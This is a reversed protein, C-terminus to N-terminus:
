SVQTVASSKPDWGHLHWRRAAKMCIESEWVAGFRAWWVERWVLQSDAAEQGGKSVQALALLDQPSLFTAARHLVDTPLIGLPSGAWRDEAAYRGQLVQMDSADGAGGLFAAAAIAACETCEAEMAVGGIPGKEHRRSTTQRPRGLEGGSESSSSAHRSCRPPPSCGPLPETTARQRVSLDSAGHKGGVGAGAGNVGGNSKTRRAEWATSISSWSADMSARLQQLHNVPLDLSRIRGAVFAKIKREDEDARLRRAASARQRQLASIRAC